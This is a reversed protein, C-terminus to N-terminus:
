LRPTSCKKEYSKIVDKFALELVKIPDVDNKRIHNELETVRKELQEIRQELNM